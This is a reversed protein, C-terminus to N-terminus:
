VKVGGYADKAVSADILRRKRDGQLRLAKIKAVLEDRERVARLIISDSGALEVEFVRQNLVGKISAPITVRGKSDMRVREGVDVDWEWM